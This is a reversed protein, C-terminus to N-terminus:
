FVAEHDWKTLFDTGNANIAWSVVDHKWIVRAVVTQLTIRRSAIIAEDDAFFLKM